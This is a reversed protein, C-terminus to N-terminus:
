VGMLADIDEHTNALNIKDITSEFVIRADEVAIADYQTEPYQDTEKMVEAQVAMQFKLKAETTLSNKREYITLERKGWVIQAPTVDIYFNHTTVMERNPVLDPM